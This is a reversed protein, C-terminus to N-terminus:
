GTDLPSGPQQPRRRIWTRYRGAGSRTTTSEYGQRALADVLPAPVFSSDVVVACGPDLARVATMVQGLPHRSAALAEDADITAAVTVQEVWDPRAHDDAAAVGVADTAADPSAGAPLRAANRLRTVLEKVPVGGVRAAQELTAVQAVTRRLVPNRLKAFAPAMTVLTEELEPYADLLEGVKTEPTIPLHPAM